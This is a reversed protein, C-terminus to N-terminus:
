DQPRLGLMQGRRPKSSGCYLTSRPVLPKHAELVCEEGAQRGLACCLSLLPQYYLFAVLLRRDFRTASAMDHRGTERIDLSGRSISTAHVSTTWVSVATFGAKRITEGLARTTFLRLHRPPDLDRWAEGFRRHGGSKINPTALALVGGPKLVRLCETLVALPDPLHEIVHYLIVADMSEDDLGIDALNGVRADLGLSRAQEVAKPDVDQGHVRWGVNRFRLM